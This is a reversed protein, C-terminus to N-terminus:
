TEKRRSRLSKGFNKQRNWDVASRTRELRDRAIAINRLIEAGTPVDYPEDNPWVFDALPHGPILVITEGPGPRLITQLEPGPLLLPLVDAKHQILLKALRDARRPSRITLRDGEATVTLGATRAERLLSMGDM